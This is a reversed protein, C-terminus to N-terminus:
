TDAQPTRLCCRKYKKGSGCPCPDNRGVGPLPQQRPESSGKLADFVEGLQSLPLGPEGFSLRTRVSATEGTRTAEVEVRPADYEASEDRVKAAEESRGTEDYLEALRHLLLHQDTVDPVALGEKLIAEARPLDRRQRDLWQYCEAWYIWGWGWQPDDTVLERFWADAQATEGLLFASQAMDSRLSELLFPDGDPWLRIAEGCVAIRERLFRLDHVGASWLAQSLDQVWDFMCHTGAFRDDFETFSEIHHFQMVALIDRWTQLWTECAKAEDRDTRACYGAQMKDDIMEFSPRDPFWREWLVTLCLWLWDSALGEAKVHPQESLHRALAEASPAERCWAGLTAKDLQVGLSRLKEVLQADSLGRAEALTPKGVAMLRERYAPNSAAEEDVIRHIAIFSM